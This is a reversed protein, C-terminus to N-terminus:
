SIQMNYMICKNILFFYMAMETNILIKNVYINYDVNRKFHTVKSLRLIFHVNETFISLLNDLVHLMSCILVFSLSQGTYLIKLTLCATKKM